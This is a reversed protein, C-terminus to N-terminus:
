GQAQNKKSTTLEDMLSPRADRVLDVLLKRATELLERVAADQSLGSTVVLLAVRSSRLLEPERNEYWVLESHRTLKEQLEVDPARESVLLGYRDGVEEFVFQCWDDWDNSRLPRLDTLHDLVHDVVIDIEVAGDLITVFDWDLSRTASVDASASGGGDFVEEETQRLAPLRLWSENSEVSPKAIPFQSAEYELADLIRRVGGRRGKRCDAYLLSTVEPPPEVDGILVPLLRCNGEIMEKTAANVEHRLWNSRLAAESVVVIVVQAERIADFIKTALPDGVQLDKEDLWTEYGMDELRRSLRRVFSKDPTAHSLFIKGLAKKRYDM